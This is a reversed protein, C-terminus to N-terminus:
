HKCGRDRYRRFHELGAASRARFTRASRVLDDDTAAPVARRRRLWRTQAVWTPDLFALYSAMMVWSFPGIELTAFLGLHLALGLLLTPVRTARFWVLLPFFLEFLLTGWTLLVVLPEAAVPLQWPFRHFANLNLAWYVATGDRWAPYLLKWLASSLYILSVQVRILRLPWIPVTGAAAEGGGRRRADLSWVRGSQTWALCFLVVLVVQHASSLPLRNWRIQLWLGLFTALVALDSRYGVIMATAAVASYVFFARGAWVALGHDILWARRGGPSPLPSLGELSWYTDIPTLGVLGLLAMVGFVM